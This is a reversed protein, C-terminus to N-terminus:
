FEFTYSATLVNERYLADVNGTITDTRHYSVAIRHHVGPRVAIQAGYTLMLAPQSATSDEIVHWLQIDAGYMLWHLPAHRLSVRPGHMQYHDRVFYSFLSQEFNSFHEIDYSYAVEIRPEQLAVVGFEASGALRHNGPLDPSAYYGYEGAVELFLPGWPEAYVALGAGNSTVKSQVDGFTSLVDARQGTLTLSVPGFERSLALMAAGSTWGTDYRTVSADLELLFDAPLHLSAFAGATHGMASGNPGQGGAQFTPGSLLHFAYRVGVAYDDTIGYQFRAGLQHHWFGDFNQFFTYDASLATGSASDLLLLARAATRGSPDDTGLLAVHRRAKTGLGLDVSLQAARVRAEGDFPRAALVAEYERLADRPRDTWEYLQALAKRAGADAPRAAVVKQYLVIAQKEDSRDVCREALERASDVDEPHDAVVAALTKMADETRDTWLYAHYLDKRADVDGPVAAVYAELHPVAEATRDMAMLLDAVRRHLGPDQPRSALVLLYQDLATDRHGLALYLDAVRLRADADDPRLAVVREQLRLAEDDRGQDALDTSLEAAVAPDDPAAALVPRLLAEADAPHGDDRMAKAKAVAEAPAPGPEPAAAPAAQVPVAKRAPTRALAGSAGLLAAALIGVAVSGRMTTMAVDGPM